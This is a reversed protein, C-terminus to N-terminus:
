AARGDVYSAGSMTLSYMEGDKEVVGVAILGNVRSRLGRGSITNLEVPAMNFKGLRVRLEPLPVAGFSLAECIRDDIQDPILAPV